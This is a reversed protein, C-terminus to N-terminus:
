GLNSRQKILMHLYPSLCCPDTKVWPDIQRKKTHQFEPLSFGQLDRLAAACPPISVFTLFIHLVGVLVDMFGQADPIDKPEQPLLDPKSELEPFPTLLFVTDPIRGKIGELM